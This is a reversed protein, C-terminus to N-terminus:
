YHKVRALDDRLQAEQVFIQELVALYPGADEDLQIGVRALRLAVEKVLSAPAGTMRALRRLQGGVSRTSGPLWAHSSGMM